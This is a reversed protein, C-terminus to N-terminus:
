RNDPANKNAPPKDHQQASQEKKAANEKWALQNDYQKLVAGKLKEGFEKSVPHVVDKYGSEASKDPRSPMAVFNKGFNESGEKTNENVRISNIKFMEGVQVTALGKTANESERLPTVFAKIEHDVPKKDQEAKDPESNKGEAFVAQPPRVEKRNETAREGNKHMDLLTKNIADRLDVAEQTMKGDKRLFEVVDRFNGDKDKNQPYGVFAGNKGEVITLDNIAIVNDITVSAMAKVNKSQDKLPNVRASIAYKSVNDYEKENKNETYNQPQQTNSKQRFHEIYHEPYDDQIMIYIQADNLMKNNDAMEGLVQMFAERIEDSASVYYEYMQSGISPNEDYQYILNGSTFGNMVEGIHSRIVNELPESIIEREKESQINRAHVLKEFYERDLGADDMFHWKGDIKYEKTSLDYSVASEGEPSALSGSGDGWDNWGWGIPLHKAPRFTWIDDPPQPAYEDFPEIKPECNVTGVYDKDAVITGDKGINIKKGQEKLWDIYAPEVREKISDPLWEVPLPFGIDSRNFPHSAEQEVTYALAEKIMKLWPNAAYSVGDDLDARFLLYDDEKGWTNSDDESWITDTSFVAVSENTCNIWVSTDAKPLYFEVTGVMCGGGTDDYIQTRIEFSDPRFAPFNSSDILKKDNM